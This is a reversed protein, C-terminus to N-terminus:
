MKCTRQSNRHVKNCRLCTAGIMAEPADESAIMINFVGRNFQELTHVRSERPLTENLVACAVGFAELFLRLRIAGDVGGSAFVLVKREVLKLRLLTVAILEKDRKSKALIHRHSITSPMFIINMDPEQLSMSVDKGEHSICVDLFGERLIENGTTTEPYEKKDDEENDEKENAAEGLVAKLDGRQRFSKTRTAGVMVRQCHAPLANVLRAMDQRHGFGLMLDAEDMVLLELQTLGGPLLLSVCRAPTSVVIYSNRAVRSDIKANLHARSKESSSTSADLISAKSILGCSALLALAEKYVQACLERTPVLILYRTGSAAISARSSFSMM